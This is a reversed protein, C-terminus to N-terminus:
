GRYRNTIPVRRDRGFAREPGLADVAITAVLASDVGGSLGLVVHRFGNKTVYDRLGLVLAAYVEAAPPEILPAVRPAPASTQAPVPAPLTALLEVAPAHGRARARHGSNRRREVAPADLDVECVLLEQEFQAARAILTGNHDVVFSHGDFVLEDQGGVLACFAYACVTERARQVVMAERELGKGEHYPSASLNVVLTAGALAEDAAPPGPQWIDECITVGIRAEGLEIVGGGRGAEFYRQEDFVGYNPLHVKRYVAAVRGGALVAAANHVDAGREPFGVVAVMGDTHAALREVADRADRLFHEKYLLDEPPYGTVALEGCLALGAGAARAGDLAGAIARENGAIDGVTPNLQCLALRLSSM